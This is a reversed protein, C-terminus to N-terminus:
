LLKFGQLCASFSSTGLNQFAQRSGLAGVVGGKRM